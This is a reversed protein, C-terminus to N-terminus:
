YPSLYELLEVRNRNRGNMWQRAAERDEVKRMRPPNLMTKPRNILRKILDGSTYVGIKKIIESQESQIIKQIALGVENGLGVPVANGIQIYQQSLSGFFEWSDPFQQLRAYERVSLPRLETPHCMMTAKGDPNTTLAPTPRSWSLRRLFGSRGGWSKYAGGIAQAQLEPPLNRWNGGEPIMKLFQRKSENFNRYLPNPDNLGELAEKLTVWRPKDNTVEKGHTPEPIFIPEGDRSGIFLVRERVQPVGYNATNLLDFITYYGITHLEKLIEIFGSGLEEDPELPPYGPGREKLPRHRIAASLIGKVNEMVFFRSDTERVVRLFEKFMMGRPDSLSGRQGVTSYAQCSPGGSVIFPEGPRLGATELIEETTVEEIKREIVPIHPCNKRITEAAFKNGVNRLYKFL